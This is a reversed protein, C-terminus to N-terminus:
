KTAHSILQIAGLIAALAIAGSNAKLVVLWWNLASELRKVRVIIHNDPDEVPAIGANLVKILAMAEECTGSRASNEEIVAKHASTARAIKVVARLLARIVVMQEDDLPQPKGLEIFTALEEADIGSDM